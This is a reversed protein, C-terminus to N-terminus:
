PTLATPHRHRADGSAPMDYRHNADMCTHARNQKMATLNMTVPGCLTNADWGFKECIGPWDFWLTRISFSGDEYYFVKKANKRMREDKSMNGAGGQNSTGSAGSTAGGEGQRRDRSDRARGAKDKQRDGGSDVERTFGPLTRAEPEEGLVGPLALRFKQIDALQTVTHRLKALVPEGEPLWARLM